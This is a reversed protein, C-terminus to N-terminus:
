AHTRVPTKKLQLRRRGGQEGVIGKGRKAFNSLEFILKSSIVLSVDRATLM